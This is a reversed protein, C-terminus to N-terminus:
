QFGFPTRFFSLTDKLVLPAKYKFGFYKFVKRISSALDFWANTKVRKRANSEYSLQVVFAAARVGGTKNREFCDLM